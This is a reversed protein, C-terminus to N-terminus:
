QEIVRCYVSQEPGMRRRTLRALVPSPGRNLDRVEGTPQLTLGQLPVSRVSLLQRM